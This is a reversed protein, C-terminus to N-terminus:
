APIWIGETGIPTPGIRKMRMGAGEKEWLIIAMFVQKLSQRLSKNSLRVPGERVRLSDYIMGNRIAIAHPSGEVPEIGLAIVPLAFAWQPYSSARAFDGSWGPIESWSTIVRKIQAARWVAQAMFFTGDTQLSEKYEKILKDITKPDDVVRLLQKRREKIVDSIFNLVDDADLAKYGLANNLSHITCDQDQQVEFYPM